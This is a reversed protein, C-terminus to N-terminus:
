VERRLRGAEQALDRALTNLTQDLGSRPQPLPQKGDIIAAVEAVARELDDNVVIYDFRPAENLEEVARELRRALVPATESKRERLRAM